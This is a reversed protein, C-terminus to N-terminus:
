VPTLNDDFKSGFTSLTRTICPQSLFQLMGHTLLPVHSMMTAADILQNVSM